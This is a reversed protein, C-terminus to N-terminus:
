LGRENFEIRECTASVLESNVCCRGFTKTTWDYAVPEVAMGVIRGVLGGVGVAQHEFGLGDIEDMWDAAFGDM